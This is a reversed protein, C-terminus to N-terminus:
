GVELETVIEGLFNRSADLIVARQAWDRAEIGDALLLLLDEGGNIQIERGFPFDIKPHTHAHRTGRIVQKRLHDEAVTEIELADKPLLAQLEGHVIM